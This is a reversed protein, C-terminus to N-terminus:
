ELKYQLKMGAMLPVVYDTGFPLKDPVLWETRKLIRTQQNQQLGYFQAGYLSVFNNLKELQNVQSFATAYLEIAAHATYCGAACCSNHKSSEAHPASDTGAFFKNSGSTAAKLVAIRHREHKLVPLCYYHPQLGGNFLQNRNYLLHQCTITAAISSSSNLVYSVADSTTIHELVIKLKPAVQVIQPLYKNIFQAERDYIDISQDTVEGHICLILNHESMAAFVDSLKDIMTDLTVGAASHTTAGAPYLKYAYISDSQSANIIDHVTTTDTLYLTMLPQFEDTSINNQQLVDVIRQKYQLAQQMTTIPPKLNPMIVARKFQKAAALVTHSLVTGDRLHHHYDDPQNLVIDSMTPLYTRFSQKSVTTTM